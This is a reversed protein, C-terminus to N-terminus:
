ADLFRNFGADESSIQGSVEGKQTGGECGSAFSNQSVCAKASFVKYCTPSPPNLAYQMRWSGVTVSRM